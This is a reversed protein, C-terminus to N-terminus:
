IITFLLHVTNLSKANVYLTLRKKKYTHTRPVSFLQQISLSTMIKHGAMRFFSSRLFFLISTLLMFILFVFWVYNLGSKKYYRMLFFWRKYIQHNPISKVMSICNVFYALYFNFFSIFSLLFSGIEFNICM